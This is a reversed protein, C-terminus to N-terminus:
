IHILSLLLIEFTIPDRLVPLVDCFLIGKKPWDAHYQFKTKLLEIDAMADIPLSAARASATAGPM